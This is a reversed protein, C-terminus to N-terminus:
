ALVARRPLADDRAKALSRDGLWPSMMILNAKSLFHAFEISAVPGRAAFVASLDAL